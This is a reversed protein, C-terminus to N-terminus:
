CWIVRKRAGSSNAAIRTSAASTAPVALALGFLQVNLAVNVPVAVSFTSPWATVAVALPLPLTVSMPMLVMLPTTLAVVAIGGQLGNLPGPVITLGFALSVTVTSGVERPQAAPSSAWFSM